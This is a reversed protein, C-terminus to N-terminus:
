DSSQKELADLTTQNTIEWGFVVGTLLEYDVDYDKPSAPVMKKAKPAFRKLIPKTADIVETLAAAILARQEPSVRPSVSIGQNTIPVSEYIVKLAAREEEPVKKAYFKDRFVAAECKGAKYAKYVGPMGGKASVQKPNRVPNDFKALVTLISLNPPAISCISVNVLDELDNINKNDKATVVVFGLKGPLKAVPTHEFQKIRWSIFHPGDFVIDYRDARMDRQYFLWGKPQQYTVKEGLLESLEAALPGYQAKGADPKERPPATLILEAHVSGWAFVALFMLILPNMVLNPVTIKQDRDLIYIRLFM